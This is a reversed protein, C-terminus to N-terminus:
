SCPCSDDDLVSARLINDTDDVTVTGDSAYARGIIRDAMGDMGRMTEMRQAVRQVVADLGMVGFLSLAAVEASQRLFRRREPERSTSTSTAKAPTKQSKRTAM